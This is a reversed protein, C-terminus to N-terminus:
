EEKYGYAQANGTAGHDMVPLVKGTMGIKVRDGQPHAPARDAHRLRKAWSAPGNVLV